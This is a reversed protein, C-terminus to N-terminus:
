SADLIDIVFILTAGGPISGQGADGYGLDSPVVLLVQSGVPKGVLGQDWGAIVMGAGIATQFPSGSEWSSDFSTGDWLWGSYHVTLVQGTQVVPGTGEILTQAVLATPEAADGVEISPAGDEALTVTPLGAAPPVATGTARGPVAGVVEFAFLTSPVAEAADTAPTGPVALLFRVGVNQEALVNNMAVPMNPDGLLFAQPAGVAWTSGQSEGTAGDVLMYHVRLLQGDEIPAGTGPTDVRAVTASVEFPQDFTLTPAAGLPGEVAVAELAAVDAASPPREGTPDAPEATESETPSPTASEEPEAENGCAALLLTAALVAALMPRRM